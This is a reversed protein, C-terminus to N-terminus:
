KGTLKTFRSKCINKRERARTKLVPIATEREGLYFGDPKSKFDM